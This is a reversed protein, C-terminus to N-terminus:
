GLRERVFNEAASATEDFKAAADHLANVANVASAVVNSHAKGVLSERVVRKAAARTEHARTRCRDGLALADLVPRTRAPSRGRISAQRQDNRAELAKTMLAGVANIDDVTSARDLAANLMRDASEDSLGAIDDQLRALDLRGHDYMKLRDEKSSHFGM